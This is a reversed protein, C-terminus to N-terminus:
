TAEAMKPDQFLKLKKLPKVVTSRRVPKTALCTPINEPQEVWLYHSVGRQKLNEALKLLEAEDKVQTSVKRMHPTDALYAKTEEDDRFQYIVAATAHCAQTIVSGVPWKLGPVLDARLVVHMVLPDFKPVDNNDEGVAAMNDKKINLCKSINNFRLTCCRIVNHNRIHRIVRHM